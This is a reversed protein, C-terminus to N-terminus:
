DQRYSTQTRWEQLAAALEGAMPVPKQSAETKMEGIQQHVVACKLNIVGSRFDVDSWKLALAESIRLGTGASLFVVAHAPNQLEGLLRSLEEADFVDPTKMRKASQRVLSIPNRHLWEYRCAHAFVVHMVNRVKAKTPNALLLGRLWSEIEVTRVESLRYDGWMPLVWINLSTAVTRQTSRAKSPLENDTYHKVLQRVTVPVAPNAATINLRLPEAVRLAASRTPLHEVTGLM